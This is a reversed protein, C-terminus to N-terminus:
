PAWCWAFLLIAGVIALPPVALGGVWAALAAPMTTLSLTANMMDAGLFTMFVMASTEATSALSRRFGAGDRERQALDPRAPGSM